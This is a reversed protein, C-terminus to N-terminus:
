QSQAHNIDRAVCTKWMEKLIAVHHKRLRSPLNQVHGRGLMLALVLVLVCRKVFRWSSNLALSKICPATCLVFWCVYSEFTVSATRM